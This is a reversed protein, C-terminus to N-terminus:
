DYILEFNDVLLKSNDGGTFYDGYKSASAVILIYKPTRNTYRYELELDKQQYQSDSFGQIHEAYAIVHPDNKDFLQRESKRTRIEYPQDWDTLAIYIHCSDAQGRLHEMDDDGIRNITSSTYKYNVRLKTPFSNFERGFSLIGNTGDTRVYTGTFINGAALKLVVWRTELSAARGTGNCTEDTPTTNSDGITTAGQNGTDWFSTTSWPQWLTGNRAAESSWNDFSGNELAIAQVTTFSQADGTTGNVTVRYQYATGPTLGTFTATYSTGSVEISAASLTEWSSSNQERYEITPTLGSQISGTLTASTCMAFVNGSTEAEGSSHYVFVTWEEWTEENARRAYFTQSSTFDHVTSPDPTVEGYEGGLDLQQIQINSLDTDSSVYIIVNRSDADVIADGIQNSVLVTREIIQNVTVTWVYDQYTRLTFSVPKSFDMRTNSSVPISDLSAFGEQPFHEYDTCVASDVLLLADNSVQLQTIKLDTIDVSDNVYITVTRATNNISAAEFETTAEGRQGEVTMGTIASEVTPYPIDNDIACSAMVVAILLGLVIRKFFAKTNM